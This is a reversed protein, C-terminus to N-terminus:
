PNASRRSETGDARKDCIDAPTAASLRGARFWIDDDAALVTFLNDLGLRAIAQDRLLRTQQRALEGRQPRGRIDVDFATPGSGEIGGAISQRQDTRDGARFADVGGITIAAVADCEAKKRRLQDAVQDRPPIATHKAFAIGLFEERAFINIAYGTEPDCKKVSSSTLSNKFSLV